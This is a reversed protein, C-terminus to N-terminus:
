PVDKAHYALVTGLFWPSPSPPLPGPVQEFEVIKCHKNARNM